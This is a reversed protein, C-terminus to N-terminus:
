FTKESLIRVFGMVVVSVIGLLEFTAAAAFGLDWYIFAHEYIYISITETATGPGGRTSLMGIDFFRLLELFRLLIAVLIPYKLQPLTIFRFIEYRNAGDIQASEYPEIPLSTLGSLLLIFVFPTWRWIDTIILMTLAQREHAFWDVNFPRRTVMEILYNVFGYYQNFAMHATLGVVVLNIMLPLFLFPFLLKKGAFKRNFLLAIAFGFCLEIPLAIGIITFTVRIANWFRPSSLVRVYNDIGVFPNGPLLPTWEVFSMRISVLLPYVLLGFIMGLAPIVMAYKIFSKKQFFSERVTYTNQERM